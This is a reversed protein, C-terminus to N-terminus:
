FLWCQIGLSSEKTAPITQLEAGLEKFIYIHINEWQMGYYHENRYWDAIESNGEECM